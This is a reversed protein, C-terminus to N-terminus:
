VEVMVAEKIAPSYSNHNLSWLEPTLCIFPMFHCEPIVLILLSYLDVPVAEETGSMALDMFPSKTEHIM